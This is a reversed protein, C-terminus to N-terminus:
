CCHIEPLAKSQASTFSVLCFPLTHNGSDCMNSPVEQLSRLHLTSASFLLLSPPTTRTLATHAQKLYFVQWWRLVCTHLSTYLVISFSSFFLKITMLIMDNAKFKGNKKSLSKLLYRYRIIYIKINKKYSFMLKGSCGSNFRM